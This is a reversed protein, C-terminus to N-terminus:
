QLSDPLTFAAKAVLPRTALKRGERRRELILDELFIRLM